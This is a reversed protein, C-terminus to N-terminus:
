SRQSTNRVVIKRPEEDERETSTQRLMQKMTKLQILHKVQRIIMADLRERMDLEYEFFEGASIISIAMKSEAAIKRMTETLVDLKDKPDPVDMSLTAPLLVSEIEMIVAEAWELASKYSSRPFKEELYNIKDARLHNRAYEEFATEPEFAMCRAFLALGRREDFADNRPDWTGAHLKARLFKQLRLKRWM